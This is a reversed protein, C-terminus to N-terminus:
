SMEPRVGVLHLRNTDLSANIATHLQTTDCLYASDDAFLHHAYQNIMLFCNENTEIPIHVRETPDVHLTLCTKPKFIMVRTRVLELDEIIANTYDLEPFLFVNFDKEELGEDILYQLNRSGFYPDMEADTGQLCIQLSLYTDSLQDRYKDDNLVFTQLETYIRETDIYHKLKEIDM